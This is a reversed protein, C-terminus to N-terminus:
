ARAEPHDSLYGLGKLANPMFVPKLGLSELRKKGLELQHACTEEGLIGRSLSVIAVRDGNKLAFPKIM